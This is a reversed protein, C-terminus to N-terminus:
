ISSGYRLGGLTHRKQRGGIVFPFVLNWPVCYPLFSFRGSLDNILFWNEPSFLKRRSGTTSCDNRFMKLTRCTVIPVLSFSMSKKLTGTLASTSGSTGCFTVETKDVHM